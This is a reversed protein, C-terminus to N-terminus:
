AFTPGAWISGHGGGAARTQGAREQHPELRGLGDRKDQPAGDQANVVVFGVKKRGPNLAMRGRRPNEELELGVDRQDGAPAM